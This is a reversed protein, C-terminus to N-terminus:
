EQPYSNLLLINAYNFVSEKFQGANLMEEVKEKCPSSYMNGIQNEDLSYFLESNYYVEYGDKFDSIYYKYYVYQGNENKSYNAKVYDNVKSDELIHM